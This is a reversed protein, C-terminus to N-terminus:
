LRNILNELAKVDVIGTFSQVLKGNRDYVFTSPLTGSWKADVARIFADDDSAAKIYTPGSAHMSDMFARAKPEDAAEDASILLLKVGKAADRNSLAVLSPMEQRCGGCWTAWFNVVLVKGHNAHILASYATENVPQLPAVALFLALLPIM